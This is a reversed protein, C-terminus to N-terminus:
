KIKKIVIPMFFSSTTGQQSYEMCMMHSFNFSNKACTHSGLVRVFHFAIHVSPLRGALTAMLVPM